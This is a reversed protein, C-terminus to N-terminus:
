ATAAKGAQPPSEETLSPVPQAQRLRLRRQDIEAAENRLGDADGMARYGIDHTQRTIKKWRDILRSLGNLGERTLDPDADGLNGLLDAILAMEDSANTLGDLTDRLTSINTKM